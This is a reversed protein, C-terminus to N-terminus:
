AAAVQQVIGEALDPEASLFADDLFIGVATKEQHAAVTRHVATEARANIILGKDDFKQFGWTMEEIVPKNNRNAIVSAKMGPTVDGCYFHTSAAITSGIAEQVKEILNEGVYYRGCM